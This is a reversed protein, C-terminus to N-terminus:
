DTSARTLTAMYSAGMQAWEDIEIMIRSMVRRAVSADVINPHGGGTLLTFRDDASLRHADFIATATAMAGTPISGTGNVVRNLWDWLEGRRDQHEECELLFHREDDVSQTSCIWCVRNCESYMTVNPILEARSRGVHGSARPGCGSELELRAISAHAITHRHMCVCNRDELTRLQQRCPPRQNRCRVTTSNYASAHM